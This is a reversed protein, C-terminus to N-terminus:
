SKMLAWLLVSETTATRTLLGSQEGTQILRQSAARVGYLSSPCGGRTQRHTRREHSVFAIQEFAHDFQWCGDLEVEILRTRGCQWRLRPTQSEPYCRFELSHQNADTREV